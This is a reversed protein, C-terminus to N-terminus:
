ISPRLWAIELLWSALLTMLVASPASLSTLPRSRLTRVSATCAALVPTLSWTATCASWVWIVEAMELMWRMASCVCNPVLFSSSPVEPMVAETTSVLFTAPAKMPPVKPPTEVCLPGTVMVTLLAAVRAALTDARRGIGADVGADGGDVAGGGAGAARDNEVALGDGDAAGIGNLRQDVLDVIEGARGANRRVEGEAVTRARDNERLLVVAPVELDVFDSLALRIRVPAVFLM